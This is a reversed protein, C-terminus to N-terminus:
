FKWILLLVHETDTSRRPQCSTHPQTASIKCSHSAHEYCMCRCDCSAVLLSQPSSCSVHTNGQEKFIGELDRWCFCIYQCPKGLGEQRPVLQQPRFM